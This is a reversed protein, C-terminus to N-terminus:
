GPGLVNFTSLVHKKAQIVAWKARVIHRTSNWALQIRILKTTPIMLTMVMQMKCTPFNLVSLLSTFFDNGLTLSCYPQTPVQVWATQASYLPLAPSPTRLFCSYHTCLSQPQVMAPHPTFHHSIPNLVSHAFPQSSYTGGRGGPPCPISIPDVRQGYGAVGRQHNLCLLGTSGRVWAGAERSLEALGQSGGVTEEGWENGPQNVLLEHLHSLPHWSM